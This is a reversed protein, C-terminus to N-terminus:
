GKDKKEDMVAERTITDVQIEGSIIDSFERLLLGAIGALELINFGNNTRHMQSKGDDNTSVTVTYTKTEM